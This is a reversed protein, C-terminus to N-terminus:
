RVPALSQIDSALSGALNDIAEKVESPTGTTPDFTGPLNTPRDPPEVYPIVELWPRWQAAAHYHGLRRYYGSLMRVYERKAPDPPEYRRLAEAWEGYQTALLGYERGQQYIRNARLTLNIGVIALPILLLILWFRPSRFIGQRADIRDPRADM